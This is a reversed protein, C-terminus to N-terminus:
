STVSRNLFDRISYHQRDVPLSKCQKVFADYNSINKVNVPFSNYLAIGTCHVFWPLRRWLTHLARDSMQVQALLLFDIYTKINQTYGLCDLIRSLFRQERFASAEAKHVSFPHSSTPQSDPWWMHGKTVDCSEWAPSTKQLPKVMHRTGWTAVPVQPLTCTDGAELFRWRGKWM